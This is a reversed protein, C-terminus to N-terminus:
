ESGGRPTEIVDEARDLNHNIAIGVARVIGIVMVLLLALLVAYEAIDQGVNERWLRLM